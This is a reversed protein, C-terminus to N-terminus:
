GDLTCARATHVTAASLYFADPRWLVGTPADPDVLGELTGRDEADLGEGLAGLVHTLHLRLYERVRGDLPAQHEVLFTRTGSPVLGARTLMAPWDEVVSASGPLGARMDAFFEEWAADLRAQLGPRGIGIDRPLFRPPLGTEAIALLGGPRLAAALGNLAGQQDGLHHVAQSSWILDAAGLAGLDDPLDARLTEVRGGLGESEARSRAHDLLPESQDVAAVRASPFRRALLCTIAGPGSGVDLVRGVAGSDAAGLLGHLWDAAARLYPANVEAKRELHAAMGEWDIDDGHHAHHSSM